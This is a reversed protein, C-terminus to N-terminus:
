QALTSGYYFTTVLLFLKSEAKNKRVKLTSFDIIWFMLLGGKISEMIAKM